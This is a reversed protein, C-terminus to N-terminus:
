AANQSKWMDFLSVPAPAAPAADGKAPSLGHARDLCARVHRLDYCNRRGPMPTIGVKRMFARCQSTMGKYKLQKALGAGDVIDLDTSTQSSGEPPMKNTHYEITM